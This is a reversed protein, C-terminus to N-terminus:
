DLSRARQEDTNKVFYQDSGPNFLLAILILYTLSKWAFPGIVGYFSFTLFLVTLGWVAMLWRSWNQRKWLAIGAIIWIFSGILGHWIHLDLPLPIPGKDILPQM